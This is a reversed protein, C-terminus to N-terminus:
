LCSSLCNSIISETEVTNIWIIRSFGFFEELNIYIGILILSHPLTIHMPTRLISGCCMLKIARIEEM